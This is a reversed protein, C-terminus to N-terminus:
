EAGQVMRMFERVRTLEVNDRQESVIAQLLNPLMEDVKSVEVGTCISVIRRYREELEHSMSRLKQSQSELGTNHQQYAKVRGRLVDARELSSL